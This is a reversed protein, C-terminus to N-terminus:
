KAQAALNAAEHLVLGKKSGGSELYRRIGSLTALDNLWAVGDILIAEILAQTPVENANAAVVCQERESQTVRELRVQVHCRNEPPNQEEGLSRVYVGLNVYMNDGYPSKQLNLVQIVDPCHRRWTKAKKKFGSVKLFPAIATELPLM